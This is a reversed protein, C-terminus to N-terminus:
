LVSSWPYPTPTTRIPFRVWNVYGLKGYATEEEEEEEEELQEDEPRVVVLSTLKTVFHFRLAIDLAEAKLRAVRDKNEEVSAKSLLDQVALYAWLRAVYNDKDLAPAPNVHLRNVRFQILGAKGVGQVVPELHTAGPALVGATVVEGGSYYHTTGQKVVSEPDVEDELYSVEVDAM